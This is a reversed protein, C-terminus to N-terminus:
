KSFRRGAARARVLSEQRIHEEGDGHQTEHSSWAAPAQARLRESQKSAYASARQRISVYASTHQRICVYASAGTCRLRESQKSADASSALGNANVYASTHQRISVYGSAALGNANVQQSAVRMMRPPTLITGSPVCSFPPTLKFYFDRFSTNQLLGQM